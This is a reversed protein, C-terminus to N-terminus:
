LLMLILGILLSLIITSLWLVLKSIGMNYYFYYENPNRVEYIFFHFTPTLIIYFVAFLQISIPSNMLYFIFTLAVSMSLSPLILKIYFRWISDIIRKM